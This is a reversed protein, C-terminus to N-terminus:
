VAPSIKSFSVCRSLLFSDEEFIKNNQFIGVFGVLLAVFWGVLWGVLLLGLDLARMKEILVKRAVQSRKSKLTAHDSKVEELLTSDSTRFFIHLHM